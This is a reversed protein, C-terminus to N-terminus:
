LGREKFHITYHLLVVFVDTDNSKVIFHTFENSLADNIHPIIRADAEEINSSLDNREICLGNPKCEVCKVISNDNKVSGSKVIHSKTKKAIGKLFDRCLSQLSEKNASCAWFREAQM